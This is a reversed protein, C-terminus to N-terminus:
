HLRVKLGGYLGRCDERTVPGDKEAYIFWFAMIGLHVKGPIWKGHDFLEVSMGDRLRGVMKDTETDWVEFCDSTYNCRLEGTVESGDEAAQAQRGKELEALNVFMRLNAFILRATRRITADPLDGLAAITEYDMEEGMVDLTHDGLSMIEDRAKSMAQVMESYTKQKKRAM